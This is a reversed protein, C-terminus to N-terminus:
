RFLASLSEGYHIRRIAEGFLSAVSLVKMQPIKKGDTPVSDTVVLDGIADCNALREVAPGSLIGHTAAASVSKAGNKKLFRAAEVLTGATAIEDDIIICHKGDVDGILNKAKANDDDNERRKDIIAMPLHLRNAYGGLDKVEGADAAVLVHNDLDRQRFYDSIIPKAELQDVPIHFFGQIQAAHLDMTLVRDAGATQILDAMLRAAISIRPRDKKDSRAYPFYPVVATIRGASASKLADITILLEIIGENVPPSATQIVFVDAGRVNDLVQVMLNENSFKVVNTPALPQDLHDAVAKAFVPHSRGAIIQLKGSLV